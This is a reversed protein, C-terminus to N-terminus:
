WIYCSSEKDTKPPTTGCSFVKIMDLITLNTGEKMALCVDAAIVQCLREKSHM